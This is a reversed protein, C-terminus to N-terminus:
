QPFSLQFCHIHNQNRKREKFGFNKLILFDKKINQKASIVNLIDACDMGAETGLVPNTDQYGKLPFALSSLPFPL